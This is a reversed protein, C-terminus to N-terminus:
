KWPLVCPHEDSRIHGFHVASFRVVPERHRRVLHRRQPILGGTILKTGNAQYSTKDPVGGTFVRAKDGAFLFIRDDQQIYPEEAGEPGHFLGPETEYIHVTAFNRDCHAKALTAGVKGPDYALIRLVHLRMAVPSVVANAFGYGPLIQDLARAFEVEIMLTVQFLRAARAILRREIQNLELQTPLLGLLDPRYHFYRKRDKSADISGDPRIGPRVYGDDPETNGDRDVFLTFQNLRDPDQKLFEAFARFTSEALRKLSPGHYPFYAAGTKIFQQLNDNPFTV